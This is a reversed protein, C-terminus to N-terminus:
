SLLRRTCLLSSGTRRASTNVVADHTLLEEPPPTGVATDVRVGTGPDAVAVDTAAVAVGVVPLAVILAVVTRAVAVGVRGNTGDVTVVVTVGVAM